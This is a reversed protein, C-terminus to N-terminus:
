LSGLLEVTRAWEAAGAIQLNALLHTAGAAALRGLEREVQREDGIIAVEAPSRVGERDLMAQYSPVTGFLALTEAARERVEDPHDTVCVPLGVVIEPAPRGAAARTIAPVIHEGITRPGALWTVTGDAVEGAVRLMAPGLAALLVPPPTAGPVRASVGGTVATVTEGRVDAAGERLLLLLAALYERLRLAPRDFPLGYRQEVSARHGVGLGLRLRGGIAAQTTQVQSSLAIPHRPPVITVATGLTIAPIERGILVLATLADLGYGQGLWLSALGAGAARHARGILDDVANPVDPASLELTLGIPIM